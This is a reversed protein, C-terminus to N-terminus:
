GPLEVEVGMDDGMREASVRAEEYITWAALAGSADREQVLLGHLSLALFSGREAIGLISHELTGDLMDIGDLNDAATSAELFLVWAIRSLDRKHAETLSLYLELANESARTASALIATANERNM